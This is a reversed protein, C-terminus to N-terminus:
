PYRRESDDAPPKPAEKAILVKGRTGTAELVHRLVADGGLAAQLEYINRAGSTVLTPLRRRLRARITLQVTDNPRAVDDLVLLRAHSARRLLTKASDDDSGGARGLEGADAWCISQAWNLPRGGHKVGLACIREVIRAACSTKGTGTPGLLVLSAVGAWKTAAREFEPAMRWKAQHRPIESLTVQVLERRRSLELEDPEPASLSPRPVAGLLTSTLPSLGETTM